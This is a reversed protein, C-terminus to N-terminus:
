LVFHIVISIAFIQELMIYIYKGLYPGSDLILTLSTYFTPSLSGFTMPDHFVVSPAILPSTDNNYWTNKSLYPGLGFM